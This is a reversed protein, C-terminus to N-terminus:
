TKAKLQKLQKLQAFVEAKYKTFLSKELLRFACVYIIAGLSLGLAVQLAVEGQCATSALWVIIGVLLSIGASAALDRIQSGIKYALNRMLYFQDVAFGLVFSAVQGGVIWGVGDDFTFSLFALDLLRRYFIMKMSHDSRGCALVAQVILRFRPEFWGIVCFMQLYPVLPLWKETLVLRVLPDALVALVVMGPGVCLSLLRVAERLGRLMRPRDSQARSLTPLAVGQVISVATMTPMQQIAQARNYFGLLAPSYIAGIVLTYLQRFFQEIFQSGVVSIGFAFIARASKRSFVLSPRWGSLRWLLIINFITGSMMQVVLAWVGWGALAAAVGLIGSIITGPLTGFFIERFKLNRQLLSIQINNIAGAILNLALVQTLLTLQPQGYFDALLPAAAFLIGYVGLAIALNLWFATSADAQDLQERQIVAMGFGARVFVSAIQVVVTVMAVLGFDEPLLLRALLLQVIFQVGQRGFRDTASWLGGKIAANRSIPKEQNSISL